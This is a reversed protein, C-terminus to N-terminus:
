DPVGASRLADAIRRGIEFDASPSSGLWTGIRLNPQLRLLERATKRAAEEQGLNIQAVAKIRLTSTHTRNLRLSMDALELARVHDGNSLHAGAALALFFYRHPDLPALLLARETDRVAAAGKGEFSYLTGRLLRGVADSPNIDLATNYRDEAEDLRRLLNTLVFGESTLALSNDPDIELARGSCTLAAEADQAPADSWGQQVRLVHWRAMWSLPAPEQPWREILSSLMSHSEEFDPPSLRHMLGVAGILQSYAPLSTFPMSRARQSERLFIARRIRGVITQITDPENLLSPLTTEVRDAWLIRGTESEAFELGLLVRDADGMMTGSIVYDASLTRGIEELSADRSRFYTASLRSVVYLEQSRSLAYIIEEAVVEGVVEEAVSGSGADRARLPIVAITPLLDESWHHAAVRPFAAAVAPTPPPLPAVTPGSSPRAPASAPQLIFGRKPITRLVERTGDGIARRIDAICQTLSDDTVSVNPWVAEILRDRSVLQGLNEVLLQLVRASQARLFVDSGTRDLLRGTEPHYELLGLRLPSQCQGANPM